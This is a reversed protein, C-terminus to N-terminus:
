PSRFVNIVNGTQQVFLGTSTTSTSLTDREALQEGIIQVIEPSNAFKSHNISNTDEIETLDVVTVGLPALVEPDVAGVRPTNGAIKRSFRLAKDDRSILIVFKGRQSKPIPQLQKEFLQVDIDPAALVIDTIRHVRSFNDALAITRLAEMTLFNGMSHAVIHVGEFPLSNMLEATEVLGDRSIAASNIDSVYDVVRRNSPWSFLVPVGRFGSDKVLQAFRAIAETMNTNYGHVFLLVTQSGRPKSQLEQRISSLFEESGRLREADQMVLHRRADPPPTSPLDLQGPAHSPPFSVNVTAFNLRAAREGSYFVGEEDSPARTTAVIIRVQTNDLVQRSVPPDPAIGILHPEPSCAATTFAVTAFVLFVLRKSVM